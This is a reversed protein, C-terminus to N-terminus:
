LEKMKLPGSEDDDEQQQQQQQQHHIRAKIVKASQVDFNTYIFNENRDCNNHSNQQQNNNDDQHYYDMNDNNNDLGSLLTQSFKWQQQKIWEPKVPQRKLQGDWELDVLGGTSAIKAKVRNAFEIASENSQRTMPPLYWVDCVIAWSTMMMMWYRLYGYKSSNWFPDGFRADYKIAVPYITAGIEFSGKKFMMVASNNICTGEPFILIPMKKEETHQRLRRSVALRDNIQFRDFWIHDSSRSIIRQLIGLFGSHSQGILSYCNDCHLIIVDIPSTHNAVCIGGPKAKNEEDHYNIISGFSRSLIRAAHILLYYQITKRFRIDPLLGLFTCVFSLWGFGIIFIFFRTPFLILYRFLFGCLWIFALRFSRYHSFNDTRTLLNWTKLEEAAFRKTVADDIIAEIGLSTFDMVTSLQLRNQTECLRLTMSCNKRFSEPVENDSNDDSDSNFASDTNYDSDMSSSTTSNRDTSDQSETRKLGHQQQQLQQQQQSHRRRRKQQQLQQNIREVGRQGYEFLKLLNSVYIQHIFFRHGVSALGLYLILIILQIILLTIILTLM